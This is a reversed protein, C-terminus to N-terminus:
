TYMDALEAARVRKWQKTDLDFMWCDGTVNKILSKGGVFVLMNTDPFVESSSVATHYCRRDPWVNDPDLPSPVSAWHQQCYCM